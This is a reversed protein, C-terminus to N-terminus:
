RNTRLLKRFSIKELILAMSFLVLGTGLLNLWTPHENLFLTGWLLAFIPVMLTVMVAYTSGIDRLLRYYLLYAIGTCLVGLPIVAMWADFDLPAKPTGLFINPLLVLSAGLLCGAAVVMPDTSSFHTRIEIASYAYLAGALLGAAFGTVTSFNLPIGGFGVIMCVGVIGMLVGSFKESSPRSGRVWQLLVAFLPVTANLVANVGAPLSISAYAFLWFRLMAVTAIVLLVASDHPSNNAVISGILSIPLWRYRLREGRCLLL